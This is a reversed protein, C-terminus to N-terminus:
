FNSKNGPKVLDQAVKFGLLTGPSIGHRSKNGPRSKFKSKKGPKVLDQAVKFGVLTGPRIGHKSM